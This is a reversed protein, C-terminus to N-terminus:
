SLGAAVMQSAALVAPVLRHVTTLTEAARRLPAHALEVPDISLRGFLGAARRPRAPHWPCRHDMASLRGHREVMPALALRGIWSACLSFAVQVPGLRRSALFFSELGGGRGPRRLGAIGLVTAYAAIALVFGTRM